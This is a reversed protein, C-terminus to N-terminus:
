CRQRIARSGAFMFESQVIVPLSDRERLMARLEAFKQQIQRPSLWRQRRNRHNRTTNM